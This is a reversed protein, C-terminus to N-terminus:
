FAKYLFNLTWSKQLFHPSSNLLPIPDAQRPRLCIERPRGM